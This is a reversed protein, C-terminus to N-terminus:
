FFLAYNSVARTFNAIASVKTLNRTRQRLQSYTTILALYPPGSTCLRTKRFETNLKQFVSKCTEVTAWFYM